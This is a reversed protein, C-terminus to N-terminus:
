YTSRSRRTSGIVEACYIRAIAHGDSDLIEIRGGPDFQQAPLCTMMKRVGSNAHAMAEQLSSLEVTASQLIQGTRNCLRQQYIPMITYDM